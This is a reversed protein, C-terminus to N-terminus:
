QQNNWRCQKLCRSVKYGIKVPCQYYYLISTNCTHHSHSHKHCFTDSSSCCKDNNDARSPAPCLSNIAAFDVHLICRRGMEERCFWKDFHIWNENKIENIASWWHYFIFTCFIIRSIDVLFYKGEGGTDTNVSRPCNAALPQDGRDCQVLISWLCSCSLLLFVSYILWSLNSLFTVNYVVNPLYITYLDASITVFHLIWSTMKSCLQSSTDAGRRGTAVSWLRHWRINRNNTEEADACSWVFLIDMTLIAETETNLQQNEAARSPLIM